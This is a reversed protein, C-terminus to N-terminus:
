SSYMRYKLLALYLSAQFSGKHYQQTFFQPATVGAARAWGRGGQRLMETSM